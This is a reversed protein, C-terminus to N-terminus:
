KKSQEIRDREKAFSEDMVTEIFAEAQYYGGHTQWQTLLERAIQKKRLPSFESVRNAIEIRRIQEFAGHFRYHPSFRNAFSTTIVHHWDEIEAVEVREGELAESLFTDGERRSIEFFWLYRSARVRGTKIDIDQHRCNIESWGDFYPVVTASFPVIIPAFAMCVVILIAFTLKKM